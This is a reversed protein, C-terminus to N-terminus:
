RKQSAEIQMCSGVYRAPMGSIAAFLELGVINKLICNQNPHSLDSV